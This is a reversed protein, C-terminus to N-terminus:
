GAHTYEILTVVELNAILLELTDAATKTLPMSQGTAALEGTTASAVGNNIYVIGTGNGPMLTIEKVTTALASGKLEALTESTGDGILRTVIIGTFPEQNDSTAPNIFEGAINKLWSIVSM